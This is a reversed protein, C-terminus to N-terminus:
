RRSRCEAPLRRIAPICSWRAASSAPLPARRWRGGPETCPRRDRADAIFAPVAAAVHRGVVIQALHLDVAAEDAVVIGCLLVLVLHQLDGDAGAAALGAPGFPRFGDHLGILM